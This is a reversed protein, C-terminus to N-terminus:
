LKMEYSWMRAVHSTSKEERLKELETERRSKSCSEPVPLRHTRPRCLEMFGEVTAVKKLSQVIDTKMQSHVPGVVQKEETWGRGERKTFKIFAAM